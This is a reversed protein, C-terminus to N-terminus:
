LLQPYLEHTLKLAESYGPNTIEYRRARRSGSPLIWGREAFARLHVDLRGPNYGSSKLTRMLELATLSDKRELDRHAALLIIAAQAVAEKTKNVSYHLSWLKNFKLHPELVKQWIAQSAGETTNDNRSGGNNEVPFSHPPTAIEHVPTEKFSIAEDGFAGRLSSRPNDKQELNVNELRELIKSGQNEVFTESGEAEFELRDFKIRIRSLNKM